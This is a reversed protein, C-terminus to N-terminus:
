SPKPTELLHRGVIRTLIQGDEDVVGAAIKTGGIDVGLANPM